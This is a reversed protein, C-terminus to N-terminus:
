KRWKINLDNYKIQATGAGLPCSLRLTDWKEGWIVPCYSADKNISSGSFGCIFQQIHYTISTNPLHTLLKYCKERTIYLKMVLCLWVTSLAVPPCVYHSQMIKSHEMLPRLWFCMFYLNINTDTTAIICLNRISEVARFVTWSNLYSGSPVYFSVIINPRTGNPQLDLWLCVYSCARNITLIM